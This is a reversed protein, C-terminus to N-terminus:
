CPKQANGISPGLLDTSPIDLATEFICVPSPKQVAHKPRCPSVPPSSINARSEKAVPLPPEVEFWERDDEMLEMSLRLGTDHETDTLNFEQDWNEEMSPYNRTHLLEGLLDEGIEPSIEDQVDTYHMPSANFHVVDSSSGTVWSRSQMDEEEIAELEEIKQQLEINKLAWAFRASLGIQYQREMDVVAEEVLKTYKTKAERCIEASRKNSAQRKTVVKTPANPCRRRKEATKIAHEDEAQRRARHRLRELIPHSCPFEEVSSDSM